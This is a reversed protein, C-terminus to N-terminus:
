FEPAAPYAQLVSGLTDKLPGLWPEFHRWQEVGDRFIPQRVQQASATRVARDNEYFRLCTEEFPLGCYELLRRIESETNDIMSEYFVRHVRGPLVADFHAMLEVYDRYYRGIDDLGYTFHQGRAFHQKFGSFCCGLPHRRADIIKANPLALQILGIHEFNNPMKDIFFPAPTKRQIRTERLYEEGLARCEAASLTALVEAYSPVQMERAKASLKKAIAALDPLEMTGEVQSHSALIQELLTSGSRPLGVIFIPDPAASGYGSRAAFFERTLLAKARRVRATLEEPVYRVSARRMRNGQTYHEFAAPYDGLDELAKGLAFHLHYRDEDPLDTRELQARMASLEAEGFRFTKLNALSWYAEGLAPQMAISKRYATISDHERAKTKLAHGYSMWIKPQNPYAALVAEYIEISQQYEGIRVLIAAKLNNYGPHRPELALLTEVERLAPVPKNQRHLVTAYNHRAGAFSPALELCRSLLTEADQFRRLRAAVEAFMRIAAVDTPFQKLHARLLAEAQPIQNECLAAAAQLLRPDRISAKIHWAYAADAGAGDGAASLQDGLALWGHALDPKLKVARRLAGIAAEPQGAHGLAVGLEYHAAAWNPQKLVLTELLGVAAASHGTARQASALLLVAVPHEPVVKLIEVAQAAAMAPQTALLRTAHALAVELTGVPESAASM